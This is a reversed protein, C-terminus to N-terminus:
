NKFNHSGVDRSVEDVSWKIWLLGKSDLQREEDHDDLVQLLVESELYLYEIVLTDSSSESSGIILRGGPYLWENACHGHSEILSPILNLEVQGIEGTSSVTGVVYLGESDLDM